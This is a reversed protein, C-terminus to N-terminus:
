HSILFDPSTDRMVVYINQFVSLITTVFLLTKQKQDHLLLIFLYIYMYLSRMM